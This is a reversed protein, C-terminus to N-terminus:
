SRPAHARIEADTLPVFGWNKEWAANYIEMFREIESHLDRKRMGRITIGHEPELKDALEFIIPLVKDRGSVHLSWKLLDM